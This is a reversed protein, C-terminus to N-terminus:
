LVHFMSLAYLMPVALVAILLLAPIVRNEGLTYALALLILFVSIAKDEAYLNSCGLCTTKTLQISLAPSAFIM